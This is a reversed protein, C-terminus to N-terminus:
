GRIPVGTRGLGLFTPMGGSRIAIIRGNRPLLRALRRTVLQNQCKGDVVPHGLIGLFWRVM